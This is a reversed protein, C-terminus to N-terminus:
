VRLLYVCKRRGQYWSLTFKFNSSINLPHSFDTSIGDSAINIIQGKVTELHKISYKIMFFAGKLNVNMIRDYDSETMTDTPGEIWLGAANILLDLRGFTAMTDIVAKECNNPKTIDTYLFLINQDDQFQEKM